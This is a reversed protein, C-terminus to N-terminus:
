DRANEKVKWYGTKRSGIREIVKKEKLQNLVNRVGKDSMDLLKM